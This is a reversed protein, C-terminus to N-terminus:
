ATVFARLDDAVKEIAVTLTKCISVPVGFPNEDCVTVVESEALYAAFEAGTDLTAQVNKRIERPPSSALSQLAAMYPVRLGGTVGYLGFEAIEHLQDDRTQLLANQLGQIQTDVTEIAAQWTDNVEPWIEQLKAYLAAEEPSPLDIALESELDGALSNDLSDDQPPPPPPPISAVISQIIPEIKDLATMAASAVGQEVMGLVKDWVAKVKIMREDGSALAQQFLPTLRVVRENEGSVQPPKGDVPPASANGASAIAQKLENGLQVLRSRVEDFAAEKLRVVLSKFENVWAERRQPLVGSAEELLPKLKQLAEALKKAAAVNTGLDSAPAQQSPGPSDNPSSIPGPAASTPPTTAGSKQPSELADDADPIEPLQDVIKFAPDRKLEAHEALFSKVISEKLPAAEYGDSRALNFVLEMGQGTVVGVYAEGKHGLKKAAAIDSPKILKKQVALYLLKSGKAILLFSRPKGKKVDELYAVTDSALPSLGIDEDENKAM